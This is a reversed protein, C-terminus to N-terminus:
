PAWRWSWTSSYRPKLSSSRIWNVDEGPTQCAHDSKISANQHTPDNIIDLHSDEPLPNVTRIALIGAEARPDWGQDQGGTQPTLHPNEGETPHNGIEWTHDGLGERIPHPDKLGLIHDVERDGAVDTYIMEAQLDWDAKDIVRKHQLVLDLDLNRVSGTSGQHLHLFNRRRRRWTSRRRMQPSLTVAQVAQHHHIKLSQSWQRNHLNSWSPPLSLPVKVLQAKLHNAFEEMTPVKPCMKRNQEKQSRQLKLPHSM